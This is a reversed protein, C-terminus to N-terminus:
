LRARLTFIRDRLLETPNISMTKMRLMEILDAEDLIIIVSHPSDRLQDKQAKVAGSPRNKQSVPAKIDPPIQRAVVFGLRGLGYPKIYKSAFGRVTDGSIEDQYNKADVIIGNANYEKKGEGWFGESARNEFVLDRKTYGQDSSFQVQPINLSEEPPIGECFLFKFIEETLDEFPKSDGAPTKRLKQILGETKLALSADPLALGGPRTLMLLSNEPLEGTYLKDWNRGHEARMVERLETAFRYHLDYISKLVEEPDGPSSEVAEFVEGYHECFLDINDRKLLDMAFKVASVAQIRDEGEDIDDLFINKEYANLEDLADLRKYSIAFRRDICQSCTGCHPHIRPRHSLACSSSLPLLYECENEKLIELVEARTKWIFPNQINFDRGYIESVLREFLDVFRPHTSRTALTGNIQESRPINFSTVGNECVILENFGLEYAIVSGLALYM